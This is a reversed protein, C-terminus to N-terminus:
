REEDGEEGGPSFVTPLRMSCRRRLEPAILFLLARVRSMVAVPLRTNQTVHMLTCTATYVEVQLSAQQLAEQRHKILM